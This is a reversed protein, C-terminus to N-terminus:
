LRLMLNNMGLSNIYNADKVLGMVTKLGLHENDCSHLEFYRLPDFLACNDRIRIIRERDKIVLRLHIRHPRTDASFGHRIINSTMEEICLAVKKSIADGTGHTRCFSEARNAAAVADNMSLITCELCDKESVGFRKPLMAYAEAGIRFRGFRRFVLLSLLILLTTEGCVFALWVGTTGFFRSLVFAYLAVLAFNQLVCMAQTLKSRGIGQYYNKFASNLASPVLCLAFLRVGEAALQMTVADEPLFLGVLQPAFLFVLVAVPINLAIAHISMTRVLEQLAGRDEDAYFVSSLMLAVAGIGTGFSFSINGVSSVVSYAAVARYTGIALLLKNLCFTLLVMSIQNVVTPIGSKLISLCTKLIGNRLNFHFASNKRLFYGLGIGFAIYYSLSSALGMGFTGWHLVFVNLFDFLVDSLTMAAVAIVLLSRKGALQIYPIMIQAGIFAPACVIFGILYERTMSFVPGGAVASGAGLLRCLPDVFILVLLLGVTSIFFALVASATFCADSAKQSGSGVAKGCVVQVGASILSGLAAFVLLVPMSFGYASMAEVGLFRGIMMSDIVMCLMVTMASLIQPWLMQKFLKRIM